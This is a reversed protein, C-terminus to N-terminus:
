SSRRWLLTLSAGTEHKSGEADLGPNWGDELDTLWMLLSPCQHQRHPETPQLENLPVHTFDSFKFETKTM